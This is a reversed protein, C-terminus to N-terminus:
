GHFFLKLHEPFDETLKLFTEEDKEAWKSVLMFLYEEFRDDNEDNIDPSWDCFYLNNGEIDYLVNQPRFDPIRPIEGKAIQTLYTKAFEFVKSDYVASVPVHSLKQVLEVKTKVRVQQQVVIGNLNVIQDQTIVEADFFVREPLPLGINSLDTFTKEELKFFDNIDKISEAKYGNTIKVILQPNILINRKDKAFREIEAMAFLSASKFSGRSFEEIKVEQGAIIIKTIQRSTLPNRVKVVASKPAVQAATHLRFIKNSRLPTPPPILRSVPPPASSEKAEEMEEDDSSDWSQPAIVPPNSVQTHNIWTQAAQHVIITQATDLKPKKRPSEESHATAHDSHVDSDSDTNRHTPTPDSNVVFSSMPGLAHRLRDFSTGVPASM